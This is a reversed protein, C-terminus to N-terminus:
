GFDWSRGLPLHLRNYYRSFNAWMANFCASSNAYLELEGNQRDMQAELYHLYIEEHPAGVLLSRDRPTAATYPVFPEEPGGEHTDLIDTRIRGDLQSLWALKEADTYTNHKLADIRQLCDQITM